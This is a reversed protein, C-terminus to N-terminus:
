RKKNRSRTAYYDNRGNKLSAYTEAHLENYIRRLFTRVKKVFIKEEEHNDPDNYMGDIRISIDYDEMKYFIDIEYDESILIDYISGALFNRADFPIASIISTISKDIVVKWKKPPIKKTMGYYVVYEYKKTLAFNYFTYVNNKKMLFLLSM